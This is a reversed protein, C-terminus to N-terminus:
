IGNGLCGLTYILLFKREFLWTKNPNTCISSVTTSGKLDNVIAVCLYKIKDMIGVGNGGIILNCQCAFTRKDVVFAELSWNNLVYFLDFVHKSLNKKIGLILFLVRTRGSVHCLCFTFLM